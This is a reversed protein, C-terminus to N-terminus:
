MLKVCDFCALIVTVCISFVKFYFQVVVNYVGLSAVVSVRLGLVTSEYLNCHRWVSYSCGKWWHVMM